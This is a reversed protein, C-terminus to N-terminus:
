RPYFLTLFWFIQFLKLQINIIVLQLGWEEEFVGKLKLTAVKRRTIKLGLALRVSIFWVTLEERHVQYILTLYIHSQQPWYICTVHSTPKNTKWSSHVCAWTHSKVHVVGAAMSPTQGSIIRAAVCFIKRGTILM